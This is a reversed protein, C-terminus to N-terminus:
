RPEVTNNNNKIQVPTRQGPFLLMGAKLRTEDRSRLGWPGKQTHHGNWSICVKAFNQGQLNWNGELSGKLEEADSRSSGCRSTNSVETKERWLGSIERALDQYKEQIEKEKSEVNGDGPVSIDIILVKNNRNLECWKSSHPLYYVKCIEWRVVRTLTDNGRQALRSYGYVIHGVKEQCKRCM